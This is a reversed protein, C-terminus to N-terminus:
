GPDSTDPKIANNRYSTLWDEPRISDGSIGYYTKHSDAIPAPEPFSSPREANNLAEGLGGGSSFGHGIFNSFELRAPGCRPQICRRIQGVRRDPFNGLRQVANEGVGKREVEFGLIEMPVHAARMKAVVVQEEVFLGLLNEPGGVLKRLAHALDASQRQARDAVDGLVLANAIVVFVEHLRDFHEALEHVVVLGHGLRHALRVLKAVLVLIGGGRAQELDPDVLGLPAGP